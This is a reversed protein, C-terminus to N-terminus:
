GDLLIRAGIRLDQETRSRALSSCVGALERTSKVYDGFRLSNVDQTGVVYPGFSRPHVSQSGLIPM